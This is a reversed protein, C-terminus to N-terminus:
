TNFLYGGQKGLDTSIFMWNPFEDDIKGLSVIDGQKLYIPDPYKSIHEKIVVAKMSISNLVLARRNKEAQSM